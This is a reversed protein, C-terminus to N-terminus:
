KGVPVLYWEPVIANRTWESGCSPCKFCYGEEHRSADPLPCGRPQEPTPRCGSRGDLLSSPNHMPPFHYNVWDILRKPRRGTGSTGSNVEPKGEIPIGVPPM